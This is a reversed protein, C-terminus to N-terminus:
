KKPSTIHLHNQQGLEILWLRILIIDFRLQRKGVTHQIFYM